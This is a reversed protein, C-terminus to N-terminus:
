FKDKKQQDSFQDSGHYKQDAAGSTIFCWNQNFKVKLILLYTRESVFFVKRNENTHCSRWPQPCFSLTRKHTIIMLLEPLCSKGRCVSWVAAKAKAEDAKNLELICVPYLTLLFSCYAVGRGRHLDDPPCLSCIRRSPLLGFLTKWHTLFLCLCSKFLYCTQSLIATKCPACLCNTTQLYRTSFSFIITALHFCDEVDFDCYKM